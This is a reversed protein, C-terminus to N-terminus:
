LRLVDGGDLTGFIFVILDIDGGFEVESEAWNGVNIIVFVSELFL